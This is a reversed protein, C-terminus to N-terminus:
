QGISALISSLFNKLEVFKYCPLSSYNMNETFYVDTPKEDYVKVVLSKGHSQKPSWYANSESASKNRGFKMAVFLIHDSNYNKPLRFTKTKGNSLDGVHYVSGNQSLLNIDYIEGDSQLGIEQKNIDNHFTVSYEHGASNEDDKSCASFAVMAVIAVFM